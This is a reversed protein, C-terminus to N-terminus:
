ASIRQGQRLHSHAGGSMSLVKEAQPVRDVLHNVVVSNEALRDGIQRELPIRREGDRLKTRQVATEVIRDCIGHGLEAELAFRAERAILAGFLISAGAEQRVLKAVRQAGGRDRQASKFHGAHRHATRGTSDELAAQGGHAIEDRARELFHSAGVQLLALRKRKCGENGVRM